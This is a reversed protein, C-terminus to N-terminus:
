AGAASPSSAPASAAGAALQVRQGDVLTPGPARLVRDGPAAGALVVVEGRRADREGLTVPAKRLRGDAVRWVFAQDGDRAIATEPLLLAQREGTAIRGEAYLNATRPATGPAFDVIVAVQRTTEDASADVHRIRGAFDGAGYGNVRLLVTQGPRIEGLRDASVLGEFRMSSPDIVKLLEKGVAATDGGSVKRDSVVGDFPARVETRTREQRAAVARADAAARDSQAANRRLEADDLAQQSSMGEAQLTKVRAYQRQAQDCAQAASRRAEEASQLSDRISTDDLRVLLEGKRVPEGNEKLVQLVVAAVEARLDARREPQISGTVVPGSAHPRLGATRLDEPSVLLPPAAAGSAAAPAAPRGCGCLGAALAAAAIAAIPASRAPALSLVPRRSKM